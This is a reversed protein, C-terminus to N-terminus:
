RKKGSDAELQARTEANIAKLDALLKQFRPDDRVTALKPDVELLWGSRFGGAIARELFEVVKDPEELIAAAFFANEEDPSLNAFPLVAISKHVVDSVAIQEPEAREGGWDHNSIFYILAVAMVGIIM